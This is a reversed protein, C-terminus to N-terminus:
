LAEVQFNRNIVMLTDFFNLFVNSVVDVSVPNFGQGRGRLAATTQRRRCEAVLQGLQRTFGTFADNQRFAVFRTGNFRCGDTSFTADRSADQQTVRFLDVANGGRLAYFQACANFDDVRFHNAFAIDSTQNLQTLAFAHGFGDGAFLQFVIHNETRQHQFLIFNVTQNGTRNM